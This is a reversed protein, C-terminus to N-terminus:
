FAIGFGINLIAVGSGSIGPIDPIPETVTEKYGDSSRAEFVIEEPIEGLGYGAEIRVYVMGGTRLGIKFNTSEFRLRTDGEGTRGGDLEINTLLIKSDFDGRGASLYLGRGARPGIYFNAGYEKYKFDVSANDEPEIEFKSYDVYVSLRNDLLPLILEANAGAVNPFGAKIGVSATKQAFAAFSFLVFLLLSLRKITRM